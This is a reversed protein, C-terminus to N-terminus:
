GQHCSYLLMTEYGLAAVYARFYIVARGAIHM